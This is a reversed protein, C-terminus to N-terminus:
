DNRDEKVYEKLESASIYGYSDAHKEYIEQLASLTYGREQMDSVLSECMQGYAAEDVQNMTNHGSYYEPFFLFYLIDCLQYEDFRFAEQMKGFEDKLCFTPYHSWAKVANPMEYYLTRITKFDEKEYAENLKDLNEDTWTIEAYAEQDYEKDNYYNIQAFRSCVFALGTILAIIILSRLLSGLVIRSISRQVDDKLGLMADIMAAVKLRFEGYAGKKNMTGCFPCKSLNEDFAAGCNRCKVTKTM